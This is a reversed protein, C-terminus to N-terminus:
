GHFKVVAREPYSFVYDGDRMEFEEATFRESMTAMTAILARWIALTMPKGLCLHRGKGFLLNAEEGSVHRATADLYLRIREDKRVSIRGVTADDLAVREVYPVGTAPLDKSFTVESLRSGPNRVLTEWVSLVVSGIFADKGVINMAVAIEPSTSLTDRRGEFLRMLRALSQNLRKRRNLGCGGSSGSFQVAGM